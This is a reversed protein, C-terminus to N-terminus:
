LDQGILSSLDQFPLADRARSCRNGQATYLAPPPYIPRPLCSPSSSLSTFLHALSRVIDPTAAHACLSRVNYRLNRTSDATTPLTTTGYIYHCIALLERLLLLLLLQVLADYSCIYAGNTAKTRIVHRFYGVSLCRPLCPLPLLSLREFEM